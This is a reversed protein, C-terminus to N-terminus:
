EGADLRGKCTNLVSDWEAPEVHIALLAYTISGHETAKIVAM